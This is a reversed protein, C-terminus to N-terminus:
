ARIIAVVDPLVPLVNQDVYDALVPGVDEARLFQEFELAVVDGALKGLVLPKADTPSSVVVVFV